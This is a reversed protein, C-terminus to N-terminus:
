ACTANIHTCYIKYRTRIYCMQADQPNHIDYFLNSVFVVCSFSIPFYSQQQLVLCSCSGRSENCLEERAPIHRDTTQATNQLWNVGLKLLERVKKCNEDQSFVSFVYLLSVLTTCFIDGAQQQQEIKLPSTNKEKEKRPDLDM